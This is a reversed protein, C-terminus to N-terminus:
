NVNRGLTYLSNREELTRLLTQQKNNKKIIAIRVPTLHLRLTTRMQMERIALSASYKKVYKNAMQEEKLFLKNLGSAVHLLISNSRPETHSKLIELIRKKGLDQKLNCPQSSFPHTDLFSLEM